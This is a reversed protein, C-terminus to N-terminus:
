CFKDEEDSHPLVIKLINELTNAEFMMNLLPLNWSRPSDIILENIKISLNIQM